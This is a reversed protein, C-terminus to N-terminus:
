KPLYIEKNKQHEEHTRSFITRGEGGALFYNYDTKLPYIAAKISEFGPNCIPGPPLGKYLYTNYPSDIRTEELSLIRKTEGLLYNVTACSELKRDEEIRKLFIGAVIRRDLENAAEKEVLSALTAVEVITKEQKKIEEKEKETKKEFNDLMKRLIEEATTKKYVRYTDPFLYGQLFEYKGEKIIKEEAEKFEEENKILGKEILYKAIEKNTWGEIILIKEEQSIESTLIELVGKFSLKKDLEYEGPYFKKWANKFLAYLEFFVKNEIVGEKKLKEAIKKVGEGKEVKLTIKEESIEKTEEKKTGLNEDYLGRGSPNFKFYFFLILVVILIYGLTVAIKKM